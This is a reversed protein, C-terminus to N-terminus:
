PKEMSSRLNKEREWNERGSCYRVWSIRHLNHYEFYKIIMSLLSDKQTFFGEFAVQIPNKIL